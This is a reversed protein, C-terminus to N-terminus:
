TSSCLRCLTHNEPLVHTCVTMYVLSAVRILKVTSSRSLPTCPLSKLLAECQHSTGCVRLQTVKGLYVIVDGMTIHNVQLADFFTLQCSNSCPIKRPIQTKISKRSLSSHLSGPSSLSERVCVCVYLCFRTLHAHTYMCVCMLYLYRVYSLSLPYLYGYVSCM